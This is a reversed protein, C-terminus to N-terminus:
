QTIRRLYCRGRITFINHTSFFYLFYGKYTFTRSVFAENMSKHLPVIVTFMTRARVDWMNTTRLISLGATNQTSYGFVGVYKRAHRAAPQPEVEPEKVVEM